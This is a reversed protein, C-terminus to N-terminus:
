PGDGFVVPQGRSWQGKSASGSGRQVNAYTPRPVRATSLPASGELKGWRRWDSRVRFWRAAAYVAMNDHGENMTNTKAASKHFVREKQVLEVNVVPNRASRKAVQSKRSAVQQSCEDSATQSAHKSQDLCWCEVGVDGHGVEVRHRRRGVSERGRRASGRRV